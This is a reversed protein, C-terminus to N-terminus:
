GTKTLKSGALGLLASGFLWVAAPLPIPAVDINITYDLSFAGDQSASDGYVMIGYLGAQLGTRIPSGILNGTASDIPLFAAVQQYAGFGINRTFSILGVFDQPASVNTTTVTLENLTYGDGVEILFTDIGDEIFHNVYCGPFPDIHRGCYGLLSGSITNFGSDLVGTSFNNTRDFTGTANDLSLIAPLDPPESITVAYSLNCHLLLLQLLAALSITGIYRKM